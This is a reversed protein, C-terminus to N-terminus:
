KKLTFRLYAPKNHEYEWFWDYRYIPMGGGRGVPEQQRKPYEHMAERVFVGHTMQHPKKHMQAKNKAIFNKQLHSM